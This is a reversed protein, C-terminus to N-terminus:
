PDVLPRSCLSLATSPRGHVGTPPRWGRRQFEEHDYWVLIEERTSPDETSLRRLTDLVGRTALADAAGNLHRRVAHWQPRWQRRALLMVAEEIEAWVPDSRLRSNCAGARIVPLNDGLISLPGPHGCAHALTLVGYALGAAEALMSSRLRPASITMQLLCRRRGNEDAESWVIAGAGAAPPEGEPLEVGGGATRAGGDFSILLGPTDTKRAVM